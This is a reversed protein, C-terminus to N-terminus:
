QRGQTAGGPVEAAKGYGPLHGLVWASARKAKRIEEDEEEERCRRSGAMTEGVVDESVPIEGVKVWEGPRVRIRAICDAGPRTVRGQLEM